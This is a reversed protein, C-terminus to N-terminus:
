WAKQAYFFVYPVQYKDVLQSASWSLLLIKVSCMVLVSVLLAYCIACGRRPAHAAAVYLRLTWSALIFFYGYIIYYKHYLNWWGQNNVQPHELTEKLVSRYMKGKFFSSASVASSDCSSSLLGFLNLLLSQLLM